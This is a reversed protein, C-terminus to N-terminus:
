NLGPIELLLQPIGVGYGQAYDVGIEKLTALIADNEVFEAITKMGMFHAFENISKVLAYDNANTNIEVIFVGDIKLYDVPLQKIYEYSSLGTGFDDLAFSCGLKKIERIFDATHALNKITATETLEFCIASPVVRYSGFQDLLFQMFTADNMSNGSLNISLMPVPQQRQAVAEMWAFVHEVVWRDVRQMRNYCEVAEIFEAPSVLEGSQERLGLLVEYHQTAESAGIPLIPQGRLVLYDSQLLASLQDIWKLLKQRRENQEVDSELLVFRNRGETKAQKCASEANRIVNITSDTYRTIAVIGISVTAEISHGDIQFPKQNVIYCLREAFESCEINSINPVLLAFQDGGMRASLTLSPSHQALLASIYKLLQDGVVHGFLDNALSFQDIDIYLLHYQQQQIRADQIAEGLRHEFEKRNLLGSLEDHSSVDVLQRYSANVTEFLAQEVLPWERADGVPQLGSEMEKALEVLDLDYVKQGRANVFVFHLHQDNIWVLTLRQNPTESKLHVFQDGMRFERARKFWHIFQPYAQEFELLLDHANASAHPQQWPSDILEFANSDLLEGRVNELVKDYRYDGPLFNDLHHGMCDILRTIAAKRRESDADSASAQSGSDSIRWLLEDLLTLYENWEASGDGSRAYTAILLNRWGAELLKVAADPLRSNICRRQLERNVAAQAANLQQQGAFKDVIRQINRERARHQQGVLRDLEASADALRSEDLTSGEVLSAIMGSLKHELPPNPTDCRTTLTTVANIFQHVPHEADSLLEPQTLASRALPIHLQGLINALTPTSQLNHNIAGFIGDVLQLVEADAVGIETDYDDATQLTHLLSGQLPHGAESQVTDIRDLLADVTAVKQPDVAARAVGPLSRVLDMINRAASYLTRVAISTQPASVSADHELAELLESPSSSERQQLVTETRSRQLERWLDVELHPLVGAQKLQENLGDYLDGLQQIVTSEFARFINGFFNLAIQQQQLADYLARCLVVVGVPLETPSIEQALLVSYRRALCFLREHWKQVATHTATQLVLQAEFLTQDLLALAADARPPLQNLPPMQLHLVIAQQLTARNRKFLTMTEFIQAQQANSQARQAMQFLRFETEDLFLELLKGLRQEFQIRLALQLAANPQAPGPTDHDSPPLRENPM